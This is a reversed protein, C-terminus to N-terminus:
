KFLTFMGFKRFYIRSTLLLKRPNAGRLPSSLIEGFVRKQVLKPAILDFVGCLEVDTM